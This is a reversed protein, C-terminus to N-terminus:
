ADEDVPPKRGLTFWYILAGVALVGVVALAEGPRDKVQAFVIGTSMACFVIPTVPYGFTKYASTMGKARLVFVAIVALNASYALTFGVFRILKDPDGVVVFLSALVAQTIVATVPVGRANHHALQHPLAHDRAM